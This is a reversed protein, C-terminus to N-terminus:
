QDQTDNLSDELEKQIKLYDQVTMTKTEAYLKQLAKQRDEGFKDIFWKTFETPFEHNWRHCTACLLLWNEPNWRMNKSRRGYIHCWDLKYPQGRGCRECFKKRKNIERSLADNQRIVTTKKPLAM